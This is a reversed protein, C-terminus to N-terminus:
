SFTGAIIYTQGVPILLVTAGATPSYSSLSKFPGIPTSQGLLVVTADGSTYSGPIVGIYPTVYNGTDLVLCKGELRRLRRQFDRLLEPFRDATPLPFLAM